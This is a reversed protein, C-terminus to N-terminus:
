AINYVYRQFPRDKRVVAKWGTILFMVHRELQGNEM